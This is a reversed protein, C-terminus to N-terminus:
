GHGNLIRGKLGCRGNRRLRIQAALVGETASCASGREEMNLLWVWRVAMHDNKLPPAVGNRLVKIFINM